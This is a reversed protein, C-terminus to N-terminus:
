ILHLVKCKTQNFKMFNAHAQRELRDLGKQISGKGGIHWATDILQIQSPISQSQGPSKSKVRVMNDSNLKSQTHWGLDLDRPM